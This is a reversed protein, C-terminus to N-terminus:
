PCGEAITGTSTPRSVIRLCVAWTIIYVIGITAAMAFVCLVPPYGLRWLAIGSAAVVLVRLLDLGVNLASREYLLLVVTLPSVVLGLSAAISLAAAFQGALQWDSGLVIPLLSPAVLVLGLLWALGLPALAKSVRLYRQRQNLEGSRVRAAMEAMVVSSVATGLLAAPIAGFTVAQALNGAIEAGYARAVLLLPLQSGLVNLLASPMFVLPFRWHRKLAGSM